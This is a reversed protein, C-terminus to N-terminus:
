ARELQNSSRHPSRALQDASPRASRHHAPACLRATRRAPKPVEITPNLYPPISTSIKLFTKMTMSPLIIHM